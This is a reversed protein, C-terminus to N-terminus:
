LCEYLVRIEADQEDSHLRIRAHMLMRRCASDRYLRKVAMDPEMQRGPHHIEGSPVQEGEIVAHRM